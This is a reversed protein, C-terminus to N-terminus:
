PASRRGAARRDRVGAPREAGVADLLQPSAYDPGLRVLPLAGGARCGIEVVEGLVIVHDGAPVTAHTRCDLWSLAEGLVPAGSATAPHWRFGAFQAIGAPRHRSAFHTAAVTQGAALVSVAFGDAAALLRHTQSGVKVSVLVLASEPSVVAFSDATMGRCEGAVAVSVVVISRALRDRLATLDAAYGTTAAATTM